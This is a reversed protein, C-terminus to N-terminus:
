AVGSGAPASVAVCAVPMPGYSSPRRTLVQVGTGAIEVAAEREIVEHGAQVLASRVDDVTLPHAPMLNIGDLLVADAKTVFIRDVLLDAGYRIVVGDGIFTDELPEKSGAPHQWGLGGNLRRRVDDRPEGLAVSAIGSGPSVVHTGTPPTADAGAPFFVIEGRKEHGPGFVTVAKVPADAESSTTYLGIAGDALRWGSEDAVAEVGAARLGDLVTRVEGGLPVGRFHVGDPNPVEILHLGEDDSCTLMLMDAEYQDTLDATNSRRVAEYPGLAARLEARPTGFRLPGVGTGPLVEWSRERM